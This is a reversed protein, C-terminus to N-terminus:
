VAIIDVKSAEKSALLPELIHRSKYTNYQLIQLDM